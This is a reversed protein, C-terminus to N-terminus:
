KATLDDIEFEKEWSEDSNNSASDSLVKPDNEALEESLSKVKSKKVVTKKEAVFHDEKMNSTVDNRKKTANDKKAVNKKLAGKQNATSITDSSKSRTDAIVRKNKDAKNNTKTQPASKNLKGSAPSKTQPTTPASDQPSDLLLSPDEFIRKNKENIAMENEYEQLLQIQQEETLEINSAFDEAVFILVHFQICDNIKESLIIM